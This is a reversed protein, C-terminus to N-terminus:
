QCPLFSAIDGRSDRALHDLLTENENEMGAELRGITDRRRLAEQVLPQVYEDLIDRYSVVSDKWPEFIRWFVGARARMATAHQGKSFADVFINSPHSKFSNPNTKYTPYPLGAELSCVDKGYLHVTASDLTFRGIADQLAM